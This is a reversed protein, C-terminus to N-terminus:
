KGIAKKGEDEIVKKIIGKIYDDHIDMKHYFKLNEQSIDGFISDVTPITGKATQEKYGQKICKPLGKIMAMRGVKFNYDKLKEQAKKPSVMKGTVKGLIGM